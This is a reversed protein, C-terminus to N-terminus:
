SRSCANSSGMTWRKTLPIDIIHHVECGGLHRLWFTIGHAAMQERVLYRSKFDWCIHWNCSHIVASILGIHLLMQQLYCLLFDFSQM